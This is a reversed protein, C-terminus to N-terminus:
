AGPAQDRAESDLWRAFAELRPTTKFLGGTYNWYTGTIPEVLGTRALRTLMAGLQHRPVACKEEADKAFKDWFVQAHKLDNVPVVKGGVIAQSRPSEELGKLSLLIQLERLSLDDLISLYEEFEDSDFRHERVAGLLLRAFLKIKEKRRTNLAARATCYWAHLFDHDRIVEDTLFVTGNALEELFTRFREERMDQIAAALYADAVSLGPCPISLAAILARITPNGEYEKALKELMTGIKEVATEKNTM